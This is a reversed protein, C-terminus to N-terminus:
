IVSVHSFMHCRAIEIERKHRLPTIGSFSFDSPESRLTNNGSSFKIQQITESDILILSDVPIDSYSVGDNIRRCFLILIM